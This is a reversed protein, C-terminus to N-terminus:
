DPGAAVMEAWREPESIYHPLPPWLPEGPALFIDPRIYKVDVDLIQAVTHAHQPPVRTWQYVAARHIGCARAVRTRLGRKFKLYHMIEDPM